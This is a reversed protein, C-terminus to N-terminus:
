LIYNICRMCFFSAILVPYFIIGLIIFLKSLLIINNDIFHPKYDLITPYIHVNLRKQVINTPSGNELTYSYQFYKHNSNCILTYKDGYYIKAIGINCFPFLKKDIKIGSDVLLGEDHLTNYFSHKIFSSSNMLCLILTITTLVVLKNTTILRVKDTLLHFVLCFSLTIVVPVNDAFIDILDNYSLHLIYLPIPFAMLPIVVSAGIVKTYINIKLFLWVTVSVILFTMLLLKFIITWLIYNITLVYDTFNSTPLWNFLSIVYCNTIFFIFSIIVGKESYIKLLFQKLSEMTLLNPEIL